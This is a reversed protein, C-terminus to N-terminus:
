LGQYTVNGTLKVTYFKYTLYGVFTGVLVRDAQDAPLVDRSRPFTFKYSQLGRTTQDDTVLKQSATECATQIRIIDMDGGLVRGKQNIMIIGVAEKLKAEWYDTFRIIDLWTGATDSMKSGRVVANGTSQEIEMYAAHRADLNAKETATLANGTAPNRAVHQGAIPLNEWSAEGPTVYGSMHWYGVEPFTTDADDVWYAKTRSYNGQLVKAIVDTSAVSYTTSFSTTEQTSFLYMKGDAQVVPAMATVFAETHDNSAVAYFDSTENSIATYVEAATETTTYSVDWDTISSLSFVDTALTAVISLTAAAGTGVVTVTVHASVEANADIATKAATCIDEETEGAGVAYSVLMSDGDNVTLTFSVVDGETTTTPTLVADAERRGIRFKSPKPDQGFAQLAAAYEESSTPMDEAVADLSNYERNREPFWRHTGIFIMTNFGVRVVGATNRSIDVQVIPLAM